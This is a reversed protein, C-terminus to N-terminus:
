RWTRHPLLKSSGGPPPKRAPVDPVDKGVKQPRAGIAPGKGRVAPKPVHPKSDATAVNNTYVFGTDHQGTYVTEGTSGHGTYVGVAKEVLETRNIGEAKAKEDIAALMEESLRITILRKM